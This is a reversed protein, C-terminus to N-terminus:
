ASGEIMAVHYDTFPEVLFRWERVRSVCIVIPETLPSTPWTERCYECAAAAATPAVIPIAESRGADAEWVQFTPYSM